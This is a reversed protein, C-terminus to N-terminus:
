RALRELESKLSKPVVGMKKINQAAGRRTAPNFDNLSEVQKLLQAWPGNKTATYPTVPMARAIELLYAERYRDAMPEAILRTWIKPDQPELKVLSRFADFHNKDSRIRKAAQIAHDFGGKAEILALHELGHGFGIGDELNALRRAVRLRLPDSIPAYALKKLTTELGFPHGIGFVALDTDRAAAVEVDDLAGNYLRAATRRQLGDSWLADAAQVRLGARAAAYNDGLTDIANILLPIRGANIFAPSLEYLENARTPGHLQGLEAFARQWFQDPPNRDLMPKWSPSWAKNADIARNWLAIDDSGEALRLLIGRGSAIEAIQALVDKDNKSIDAFSGLVRDQTEGELQAAKNLLAQRFAEPAAYNQPETLRWMEILEDAFHISHKRDSTVEVEELARLADVWGRDEIRAINARMLARKNPALKDVEGLIDPVGYTGGGDRLGLIFTRLQPLRNPVEANSFARVHQVFAIEDGVSAAGRVLASAMGLASSTLNSLNTDRGVNGDASESGEARGSISEGVVDGFAFFPAIAGIAVVLVLAHTTTVHGAYRSTNRTQRGPQSRFVSPSVHSQM